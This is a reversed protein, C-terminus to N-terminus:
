ESWRAIFAERDARLQEQMAPDNWKGTNGGGDLHTVHADLAIGSMAGTHQITLLLDNDGYWWKCDEPFRYGALFEGRVVFAFGAFGGTGDYKEACIDSRYEVDNDSTRGDYNASVAALEPHARLTDAMVSVPTGDLALDNNLFAVDAIPAKSLAWEIGTNWMEHIGADPMSAVTAIDQTELWNRTEKGSGNDIVLIGSIGEDAKLQSLLDRTYGLQNKVPVVVFLGRPRQEPPIQAWFHATTLTREKIHGAEITTDVFAPFGLSNARLIFTFDEGMMDHVVEGTADDVRDHQAYKFWPFADDSFKEGVAELVSRHILTCGMGPICQWFREPPIGMAHRFHEGDYVIPAPTVELARNSTQAQILASLIPRETPDAAMVLRELIDPKFTQDTDVFWLWDADTQELFARVLKNRAAPLNTTQVALLWGPHELRKGWRSDAEKLVLMSHHFGPHVRDGHPYAVAVKDAMHDRM